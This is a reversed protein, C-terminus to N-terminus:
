GILSNPPPGSRIKRIGLSERFQDLKTESFQDTVVEFNPLGPYPLRTLELNAAIVDQNQEINTYAVSGSRLQGCIYRIAYVEGVGPVGKIDDSVCGSIAKVYAWETPLIGKQHVFETASVMEKTTPDYLWVNKKLCQLLDKDRSVIVVDMELDASVKAIIDDAEYGDVRFVNSFGIQSLGDYLRDIEIYLNERAAREDDSFIRNERSQKYTPYVLKRLSRKGDFAFVWVSPNFAERLTEIDRLFGFTVGTPLGKFHLKGTSHFARHMLGHCDVVVCKEPVLSGM